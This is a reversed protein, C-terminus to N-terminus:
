FSITGPWSGYPTIFIKNPNEILYGAWWSFTSNPIIIHKCLSMLQMDRFTNEGKNYDVFIVDEGDLGLTELNERCWDVNDSFVFFSIPRNIRRKTYNVAKKYYNRALIEKMGYDFNVVRAHIAVSESNTISEAMKKNLEDDFPLFRFASRVEDEVGEINCPDGYINYYTNELPSSEISINGYHCWDPRKFSLIQKIVRKRVYPNRLLNYKLKITGKLRKNIFEALTHKVSIFRSEDAFKEKEQIEKLADEIKAKNPSIIKLGNIVQKYLLPLEIYSLKGDLKVYLKDQNGRIMEFYSNFGLKRWYRLEDLKELYNKDKIFEENIDYEELSSGLVKPLENLYGTLRYYSTDVYIKEDKYIKKLQLYICYQFMVNGLGHSLRVIKM